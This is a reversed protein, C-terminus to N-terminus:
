RFASLALLFTLSPKSDPRPNLWKDRPRESLCGFSGSFDKYGTNNIPFRLMFILHSTLRDPRRALIARKVAVYQASCNSAISTLVVRGGQM